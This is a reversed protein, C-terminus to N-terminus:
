ANWLKKAATDVPEYTSRFISDKCPYRERAVGTIIWDSPCVRHGDEMTDIWGHAHFRAGCEPCPSEGDVDPRRFYRVVLGEKDFSGSGRDEQTYDDPHDGNKFWQTAEIVVPKKRFKAM